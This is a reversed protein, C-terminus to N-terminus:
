NPMLISTAANSSALARASASLPTEICQVAGAGSWVIGKGSSDSITSTVTMSWRTPGTSAPAIASTLGAFLSRGACRSANMEFHAASTCCPTPSIIRSITVSPRTPGCSRSSARNVPEAAAVVAGPPVRRGAWDPAPDKAAPLPWRTVPCGRGAPRDPPRRRACRGRDAASAPPRHCRAIQVGAISTNGPM